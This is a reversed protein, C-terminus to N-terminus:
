RRGVYDSQDFDVVVFRMRAAGEGGRGRYLFIRRDLVRHLSAAQFQSWLKTSTDSRRRSQSAEPLDTTKAERQMRAREQRWRPCALLVHKVTM